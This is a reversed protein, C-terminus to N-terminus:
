LEFRKTHTFEIWIWVWVFDFLVCWISYIWISEYKMRDSSNNDGFQKMMM